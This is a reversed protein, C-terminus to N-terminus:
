KCLAPTDDVNNLLISVTFAFGLTKFLSKQFTQCEEDRKLERVHGFETLMETRILRVYDRDAMPLCTATEQNSRIGLRKCQQSSLGAYLLVDRVLLSPDKTLNYVDQQAHFNHNGDLVEISTYISVDESRFDSVNACQDTSLLGIFPRSSTLSLDKNDLISTSIKAVHKTNLARVRHSDSPPTLQNLTVSFKGVFCSKISADISQEMVAHDEYSGQDGYEHINDDGEEHEDVRVTLFRNVFEVATSGYSLLHSSFDTSHHFSALDMAVIAHDMVVQHLCFSITEVYTRIQTMAGFQAFV